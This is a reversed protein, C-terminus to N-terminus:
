SVLKGKMMHLTAQADKFDYREVYSNIQALEALFRGDSLAKMLLAIQRRSDLSGRVLLRELEEMLAPIDEPRGGADDNGADPAGKLSMLNEFNGAIQMFANELDNLHEAAKGSEGAGLERDMEGAIKRLETLSLLGAVGKLNHTISSAKQTNGTSVAERIERPDREHSEMFRKLLSIYLQGDGDMRELANAIDMAPLSEPWGTPVRAGESREGPTQLSHLPRTEDRCSLLATRLKEWELPKYLYGDFGAKLLREMDETESATYAFIPIHAGSVKEEVRIRATAQIGDMGPMRVDMLICDFPMSRWKEVAQDGDDVSVFGHGM